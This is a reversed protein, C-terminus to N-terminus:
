FLIMEGGDLAVSADAEVALQASEEGEAEFMVLVESGDARFTHTVPQAKFRHFRLATGSLTLPTSMVISVDRALLRSKLQGLLLNALEGLWDALDDRATARAPHSRELLALPVSLVVSGRLKDGGLGIIAILEAWSSEGHVMSGAYETAVGASSMVEGVAAIVMDNLRSWDDQRM